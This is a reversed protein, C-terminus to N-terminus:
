EPPQIWMAVIKGKFNGNSGYPLDSLDDVDTSVFAGGLDGYSAAYLWASAQGRFSLSQAKGLIAGTLNGGGLGYCLTDGLFQTSAHLCLGPPTSSDPVHINFTTNAPVNRPAGGMYTTLESMQDTFDPNLITINQQYLEYDTVKEDGQSYAWFNGLDPNLTGFVGPLLFSLYSTYPLSLTSTGLTSFGFTGNLFAYTGNPLCISGTPSGLCVSNSANYPIFASPPPPAEYARNYSGDTTEIGTDPRSSNSPVYSTSSLPVSVNKPDSATGNTIILQTGFYTTSNTDNSPKTNFLNLTPSVDTENMDAATLNCAIAVARGTITLGLAAIHIGGSPDSLLKCDGGPAPIVRSYVKDATQNIVPINILPRQISFGSKHCPYGKSPPELPQSTTYRTMNATM